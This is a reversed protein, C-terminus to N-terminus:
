KKILSKLVNEDVVIPYKNRLEALWTKELYEQYDSVIYGKAEKLTKPEPKVIQKILIFQYSSDNIKNIPSLGVKWNTRDVVDYQGKEYKGEIVSLHAKAGAKNLKDKIETPTKKTALKYADDNLKKDNSNFIFAEARDGWMYKQENNKRFTELGATDKVAKTWVMRDMLEFLLIGDKYEKMLNKFDPKKIELMSEEYELCKANVFGDYYENLLADKNKDSRKKSNKEIFEAFDNTTYNKGALAFLPNSNARLASDAKWNGKLINSDLKAEFGTKAAAFQVFGNEKKIREVLVSKAVQSRTDREVKKKIDAKADAFSPMERKELRKIIHWGFQTM